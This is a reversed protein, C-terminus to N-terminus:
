LAFAASHEATLSVNLCRGEAFFVVPRHEQPQEFLRERFQDPGVSERLIRLKEAAFVVWAVAFLPLGAGEPLGLRRRYRTWGRRFLAASPTKSFFGESFARVFPRRRGLGHKTAVLSCFFHFLDAGPLAEGAAEGWDVVGIRDGDVLINADCFDGHAAVLPVAPGLVDRVRDALEGLLREEAPDTEFTEAYCAISDALRLRVSDTEVRRVGTALTFDILWDVVRDVIEPAAALVGPDLDKIRRGPLHTETLVTYSGDDLFGLPRPIDRRGGSNM